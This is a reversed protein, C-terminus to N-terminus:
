FLQKKNNEKKTKCIWMEEKFDIDTYEVLNLKKSIAEIDNEVIQCWNWKKNKINDEFYEYSIAYDHAMIFDNVKIYKSFLNFEVSKEDGDCLILLKKNTKLFEDLKPLNQVNLVNMQISKVGIFILKENSPKIDVTMIETNINNEKSFEYLFQTFGGLGTGIELIREFKEKLLFQKFLEWAGLTQQAMYRNEYTCTMPIMKGVEFKTDYYNKYAESRNSEITLLNHTSYVCLWVVRENNSLNLSSKHPTNGDWVVIDGRKPLPTDWENTKKNFISVPGNENTFDDLIWACTITKFGGDKALEPNPGMENDTHEPFEFNENPLKVVIQDNFLYITDTQLLDKAIDYMFDSTYYLYLSDQLYSAVDIGRWYTANGFSKKTGILNNDIVSHKLSLCIDKCKDVDDKPISNPIIIYGQEIFKKVDLV